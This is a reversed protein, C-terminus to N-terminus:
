SGGAINDYCEKILLSVDVLAISMRLCWGRTDVLDTFGVRIDKLRGLPDRHIGPTDQLTKAANRTTM